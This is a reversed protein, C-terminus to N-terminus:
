NLKTKRINELEKKIKDSHEDMRRRLENLMKIFMVKLQKNPLNCIKVQSIEEEPTKDIEKM